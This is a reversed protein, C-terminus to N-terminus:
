SYVIEVKECGDLQKLRHLLEDRPSVKYQEGM